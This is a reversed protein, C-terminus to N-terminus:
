KNKQSGGPVPDPDLHLFNPGPDASRCLLLQLDSVSIQLSLKGAHTAQRQPGGAAQWHGQHGAGPVQRTHM